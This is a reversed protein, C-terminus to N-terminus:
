RRGEEALAWALVGAGVRGADPGFDAVRLEPIGWVLRAELASALPELLRTGAAVGGGGLVVLGVDLLAVADAITTALAEVGETWVETAIRDDAGALAVVARGDLEDARAPLPLGHASMAEVYRRALGASGAYQTLCGRRGCGCWPGEPQAVVHGLEGAGDHAGSRVRGNLVLAGGVGTGLAVFLFDARRSRYRVATTEALAAARVDNELRVPLGLREELRDRLPLERWGFQVNARVVGRSADVLGPVAVGCAVPLLGRARAGAAIEAAFDGVRRATLPREAGTERREVRTHEGSALVIAGKLTTGGVDIAVVVSERGGLGDHGEVEVLRETM